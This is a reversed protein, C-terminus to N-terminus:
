RTPTTTAPSTGTTTSSLHLGAEAACPDGATRAKALELVPGLDHAAQTRPVPAAIVENVWVAFARDYDANLRARCDAVTAVTDLDGVVTRIGLAVILSVGAILLSVVVIAGAVIGARKAIRVFTLLRGFERTPVTITDAPGGAANEHEPAHGSM